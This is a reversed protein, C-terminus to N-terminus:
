TNDTFIALYKRYVYSRGYTKSEDKQSLIGLDVFRDIVKQAGPRSFGIWEQIRAVNVIPLKFLQPLVKIASESATKGLTRIKDMDEERLTTIQHVTEIAEQSVEIMGDLFFDLWDEVKGQTQYGLLKQYYIKQHKKFYWSLFLVPRELLEERHLYFTILLRGTRGNGDLFPHIMEFQSHIVGAKIIPLLEDEGHFFKELDDLCRMLESPPPPVYSANSPNTGGIWNQTKRFNGPDAFHTTRAEELLERHLERIFRLGMPLTSLRGLGYNMAKLYHIIDDVDAPLTESTQAEAEISDVMTANTGEIQSSAAADIRMYMFIFFDVDPLLRTIGDLKGLFLTAISAKKLLSPPLNFGSKPPFDNPVLAKYNGHPQKIYQGIQNM